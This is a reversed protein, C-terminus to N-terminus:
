SYVGKLQNWRIRILDSFMRTGDRLFRIKSGEAHSWRVPIERIQLGARSALFLLEPDFGFGSITLKQFIPTAKERRFLKFGCQTDHINLGLFLRVMLNFFKGGMERVPSQHKEIFSGDLGRSGIVIDANEETAVRLLRDLEEIPTSLDADSFLVYEGLAARVGMAVAFGKGHNTSNRLIRLRPFHFAAIVASTEDKSGDDVVVLETPFSLKELFENIARVSEGIRVAENFAPIVISVKPTVTAHFPSDVAM